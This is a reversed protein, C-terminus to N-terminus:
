VRAGNLRGHAFFRTFGFAAGRTSFLPVRCFTPAQQEMGSLFIRIVMVIKPMNLHSFTYPNLRRHFSHRTFASQM